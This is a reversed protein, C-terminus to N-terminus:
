GLPLWSLELDWGRVTAVTIFAGVVLVNLVVSSWFSRRFSRKRTKHRFLQQAVLAGPWGCVLGFTLLTQESVRRGGRRAAAKDFGYAAFAVLSMALYLAPMWWPLGLTVFAIGFAAIFAVLTSWSLAAPLPRSLDRSGAREAPANRHGRDPALSM